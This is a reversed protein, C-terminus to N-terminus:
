LMPHMAHCSMVQGKKCVELNSGVDRIKKKKRWCFLLESHNDPQMQMCEAADSVQHEMGEM